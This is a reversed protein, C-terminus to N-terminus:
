TPLWIMGFSVGCKRDLCTSHVANDWLIDGLANASAMNSSPVVKEITVPLEGM